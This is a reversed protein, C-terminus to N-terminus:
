FVLAVPWKHCPRNKEHMRSSRCTTTRVEYLLDDAPIDADQESLEYGLAMSYETFAIEYSLRRFNPDEVSGTSKLANKVLKNDLNIIITLTPRDYKSRDNEDGINRYEVKFGGSPRRKKKGEGGAPDVSTSGNQQRSGRHAIEPQARGVGGEGKENKGSSKVVDGPFSTGEVWVGEDEDAASRNGFNSTVGGPRASASRIDQLRGIVNEFDKNLVDAIKKAENALRRSEETVTISRM